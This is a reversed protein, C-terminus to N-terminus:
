NGADVPCPREPFCDDNRWEVFSAYARIESGALIWEADARLGPTVVLATRDRLVVEPAGSLPANAAIREAIARYASAFRAAAEASDWRTLWVLEWRGGCAIQLFRDGRWGRIIADSDAAGGYEDFLVRLTLAGAVNDDGLACGRAELRQALEASPLRVFEVPDNDEPALVRLTSLPPDRLAADLGATGELTFRRASLPTGYAYPFILSERLLRPAAALPGGVRTLEVLLSQRVLAATAEDRGGAGSQLERVGLMTFTADGELMASLAGVVDDQHRLGTLLELAEPEHQQQLAHVLEHVVIVSQGPNAGSAGDRLSDLVYLTRRRSSYLGAISDSQLRMMLEVLDLGPPFVGLAAYGDRYRRASEPTFTGEVESHILGPFETAPIWELRVPAEFALGRLDSAQAQWSALRPDEPPGFLRACAPCAALVLVLLFARGM